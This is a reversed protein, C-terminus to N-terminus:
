QVFGLTVPQMFSPRDFVEPDVSLQCALRAQVADDCTLSIRGLPGGAEVVLGVPYRKIRVQKEVLKGDRALDISGGSGDIVVHGTLQTGDDLEIPALTFHKAGAAAFHWKSSGPRNADGDCVLGFVSERCTTVVSRNDSKLTLELHGARWAADGRLVERSTTSYDKAAEDACSQMSHVRGERIDKPCHVHSVRTITEFTVTASGGRLELSGTIDSSSHSASHRGESGFGHIPQLTYRTTQAVNQVPTRPSASCAAILPLFLLWPLRTTMATDVHSDGRLETSSESYAPLSQPTPTM